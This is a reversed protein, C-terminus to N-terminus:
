EAQAQEADLKDDADDAADDADDVDDAGDDDAEVAAADVEDTEDQVPAEAQDEVAVDAQDEARGAPKGEPKATKKPVGTPAMVLTMRRGEIKFDREVKAVDALEQKVQTFLGHGVDLHVMERGRFILTFQVKNGKELFEKARAVKISLDHKDTKPRM